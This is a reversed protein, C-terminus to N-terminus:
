QTLKYVVNIYKGMFEIHIHKYKTIIENSIKAYMRRNVIVMLVFLNELFFNETFFSSYHVPIHIYSHIFTQITEFM